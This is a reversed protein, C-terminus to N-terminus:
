NIRIAYYNGERYYNGDYGSLVGWDSESVMDYVFQEMDFTVNNSAILDDFSEYFGHERVLCQYPDSLCEYWVNYYSEIVEERARDVLYEKQLELDSIKDDISTDIGDRQDELESIQEDLEDREGELDAVILVEEDSLDYVYNDSMDQAFLRRNTESMTLYSEVNYIYRFGGINEPYERWYDHLAEDFEDQTGVAWEEGNNLTFSDIGYYDWRNQHFDTDEDNFDTIDGFVEDIGLLNVLVLFKNEDIIEPIEGSVGRIWDLDDEESEIMPFKEDRKQIIFDVTIIKPNYGMFDLAILEPISRKSNPFKDASNKYYEAWKIKENADEQNQYASKLIKEPTFNEIPEFSKGGFKNSGYIFNEDDSVILYLTGLRAELEERIIRKLNM